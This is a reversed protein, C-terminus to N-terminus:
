ERTRTHQRTNWLTSAPERGPIVPFGPLVNVNRAAHHHSHRRKTIDESRTMGPPDLTTCNRHHHVAPEEPNHCRTDVTQARSATLCKMASGRDPPTGSHAPKPRYWAGRSLVPAMPVPRAPCSGGTPDAPGATASTGSRGPGTDAATRTFPTPPTRNGTLGTMVHGCAPICGTMGHLYSMMCVQDWKKVM